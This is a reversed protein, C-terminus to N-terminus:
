EIGGKPTLGPINCVDNIYDFNLELDMFWGDAEDDFKEWLPEINTDESPLLWMDFDKTIYSKIDLLTQFTDSLVEVRNKEDKTVLDLMYLRFKLKISIKGITSPQPQIWLLPYKTEPDNSAIDWNPGFGYSNIQKHALSLAAFYDNLNNISYQQNNVIM